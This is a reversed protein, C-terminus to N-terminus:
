VCVYSFSCIYFFTQQGYCMLFVILIDLVFVKQKDLMIAWGLEGAAV